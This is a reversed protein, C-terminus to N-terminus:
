ELMFAIIASWYLYSCSIGTPLNPYRQRAFARGMEGNTVSVGASAIAQSLGNADGFTAVRSEFAACANARGELFPPGAFAVVLVIVLLIVLSRIEANISAKWTRRALGYGFFHDRLSRPKELALSADINGQAAALRYWVVARAYDHTGARWLDEPLGIGYHYANGLLFQGSAHGQEAAKRLWSVAKVNDQPVGHGGHYLWGLRNQAGALGQEAAKRYWLFGQTDDRRVGRGNSYADGLANQADADGQEAAKRLAAIDSTEPTQASAGGGAPLVESVSSVAVPRSEPSPTPVAPDTPPQLAAGCNGCFKMGTNAEKGCDTCFFVVM